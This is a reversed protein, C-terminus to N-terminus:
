YKQLIKQKSCVIDTLQSNMLHDNDEFIHNKFGSKELEKNLIEFVRCKEGMKTQMTTLIHQDQNIFNILIECMKKYIGRNRFYSNVEMTSIYTIPREQNTFIFYEDLYITAAVITKKNINNDAIGLLYSYKYIKNSISDHLNLYHMGLLIPYSSDSDDCVYQCINKDFYNEYFFDNLEDINLKIWEIRDLNINEIYENIWKKRKLM